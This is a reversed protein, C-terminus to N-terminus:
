DSKKTEVKIQTFQFEELPITKLLAIFYDSGVHSRVGFGNIWAQNISSAESIQNTDLMSELYLIESDNLAIDMELETNSQSAVRNIALPLGDSNRIASKFSEIHTDVTQLSDSLIKLRHAIQIFEDEMPHKQHSLLTHGLPTVQIVLLTLIVTLFGFFGAILIFVRPNFSFEGVKSAEKFSYTEVILFDKKYKFQLFLFSFVNKVQQFFLYLSNLRM